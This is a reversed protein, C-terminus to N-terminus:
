EHPGGRRRQLYSKLSARPAPEPKKRPQAPAPQVARVEVRGITIQIDVAEDTGPLLAEADTNLPRNAATRPSGLHTLVPTVLDTANPTPRNELGDPGARVTQFVTRRTGADPTDLARVEVASAPRSQPQVPVALPVTAGRVDPVAALDTPAPAAPQRETPELSARRSEALPQEGQDDLRASAPSTNFAVPQEVTAVPEPSLLPSVPRAQRSATTPETEVAEPVPEEFEQRVGAPHLPEFKSPLRPQLLRPTGRAQLILRTLNDM